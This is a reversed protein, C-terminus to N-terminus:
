NKTLALVAYGTAADSMFRGVDSTLDRQVNPSYSQWFGEKKNQNRNLWDIAMKVEPQSRSMGAQQLALALVGTAYGDSQTELATGDRRKWTGILNSLSWGGDDRQKKAIAQAFAKKQGATFLDPLRASSYMAFAQNIETQNKFERQLYGELLAINNKVEPSSRYSPPAAVVAMAAFAAGLYPSDDAEWPENHFNLWPFSGANEGDPIQFAWMAKLATRGPETLEGKYGDYTALVLANLIAETIRSQTSRPLGGSDKYFPQVENWLSVRKGINALLKREPDTLDKESLLPRLAPRSLAYPVVTHCSVCFTDHDRVSKPWTSWWQQRGDLYAAAAKSDWLGSNDAAALLGISRTSSIALVALLVLTKMAPEKLYRVVKANFPVRVFDTVIGKEGHINGYLTMTDSCETARM